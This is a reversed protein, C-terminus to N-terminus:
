PTFDFESEYPVSAQGPALEAPKDDFITELFRDVSAYIAEREVRESLRLKVSTLARQGRVAPDALNYHVQMVLVEGAAVRMGLGDPYFVAGQGPAWVVPSAVTEVGEGASSYCTWGDRDPSEQDLARMIEDNTRGDNLYGPAKPDVSLVVVHHVLADNGPAVEYGTIFRDAALKPDVLFCRYEDSAAYPGPEIRPEFDPSRVEQYDGALTAVEAPRLDARPAGEVMASDAWEVIAKIEGDDLWAPDRLSGCSGDATALFPPMRRSAVADKSAAAWQKASAYDDLRFPAIGGESHCSVCRQYYVPAVDQWFTLAAPEGGGPPKPAPGLVVPTAGEPEGCAVAGLLCLAWRLASATRARVGARPRGAPARAGVDSAITGERPTDFAENTM